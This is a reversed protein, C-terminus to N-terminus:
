RRRRTHKKKSLRSKMRRTRRAGGSARKRVIVTLVRRLIEETPEDDVNDLSLKLVSYFDMDIMKEKWQKNEAVTMLFRCINQVVIPEEDDNNHLFNRVAELSKDRGASEGGRQQAAWYRMERNTVLGTLTSLVITMNDSISRVFPDDMGTWFSYKVGYKSEMLTFVHDLVAPNSLVASRGEESDSAIISFYTLIKETIDKNTYYQNLFSFLLPIIHANVMEQRIQATYGIHMICSILPVAINVSKYQFFDGPLKGLFFVQIGDILLPLIGADYWIKKWKDDVKCLHNIITLTYEIINDSYESAAVNYTKIIEIFLPVIDTSIRLLADTIDKSDVMTVLVLLVGAIIQSETMKTRLITLLPEMIILTSSLFRDKSEGKLKISFLDALGLIAHMLKRSDQNLLLSKMHEMIEADERIIAGESILYTTLEAQDNLMSYDIASLGRDGVKNIYEHINVGAGKLKEIIVRVHPYVKNKISEILRTDGNIKVRMLEAPGSRTINANIRNVSARRGRTLNYSEAQTICSSRCGGNIIIIPPKRRALLSTSARALWSTSAIPASSIDNFIRSLTIKMNGQKGIAFYQLAEAATPYISDSYVWDTYGSGRAFTSRKRIESLMVLTEALPKEYLKIIGSKFAGVGEEPVNLYLNNLGDTVEEGPFYIRVSFSTLKELTTRYNHKATDDSPIPTTEFFTKIADTVFDPMRNSYSYLGCIANQIFIVNDPVITTKEEPPRDFVCGHGEIAYVIAGQTDNVPIVSREPPIDTNM